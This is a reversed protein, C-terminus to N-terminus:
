SWYQDLWDSLETTNVHSVGKPKSVLIKDNRDTVNKIEDRVDSRSMDTEVFWTSDLLHLTDGLDEIKSSIAEYDQGPDQLDYDIQYVTM